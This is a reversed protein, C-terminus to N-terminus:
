ACSNHHIMPFAEKIMVGIPNKDKSFPERPEVLRKQNAKKTTSSLSLSPLATDTHSMAKRRTKSSVSLPRTRYQRSLFIDFWETVQARSIDPSRDRISQIFYYFFFLFIFYTSLLWRVLLQRHHGLNSQHKFTNISIIVAVCIDTM